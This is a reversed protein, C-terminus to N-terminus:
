FLKGLSEEQERLKKYGPSELPLISPDLKLPKYIVPNKEETRITLSRIRGKAPLSIEYFPGEFLIEAQEFDRDFVCNYSDRKECVMRHNYYVGAVVQISDGGYLVRYVSDKETWVRRHALMGSILEETFITTNVPVSPLWFCEAAIKANSEERYIRSAFFEKKGFLDGCMKKFSTNNAVFDVKNKTVVGFATSRFLGWEEFYDTKFMDAYFIKLSNRPRNVGACSVLLLLFFIMYRKMM